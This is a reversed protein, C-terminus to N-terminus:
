CCDEDLCPCETGCDCPAMNVEKRNRPVLAVAIAALVVAAHVVAM